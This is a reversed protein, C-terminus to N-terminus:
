YPQISKPCVKYVNERLGTQHLIYPHGCVAHAVLLTVQHGHFEM